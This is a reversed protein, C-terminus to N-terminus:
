LKYTEIHIQQTCFDYERPQNSCVLTLRDKCFQEVLELYWATGVADLNTVPEDLLLMPTDSCFALALKVRQKMGSSFYRIQRKTYKEFGLLEVLMGATLGARYNKFKFHFAIQEELTFEEVLDLYPAAFSIFPFVSEPEILKDQDKYVLKGESPSLYGSIVQLLTSKGAGNAGLIAYSGGTHLNLNVNRFIWEKNFRRGIHELIIEM